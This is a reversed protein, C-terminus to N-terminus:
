EYRQEITKVIEAQMGPTVHGYVMMITEPSDGLREAGANASHGSKLLM